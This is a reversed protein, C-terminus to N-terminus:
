LFDDCAKTAGPCIGSGYDDCILVAGNNLRDYFFEISAKTPEYLDVDIHVFSFRKQSVENFRDPIWGKHFVVRDIFEALNEAVVSEGASLDGKSWFGGDANSPKSLGEFSNRVMSAFRYASTQRCSFRM